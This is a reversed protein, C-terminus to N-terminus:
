EGISDRWCSCAASTTGVDPYAYHAGYIHSKGEERSQELTPPNKYCKSGVSSILKRFDCNGCKKDKWENDM